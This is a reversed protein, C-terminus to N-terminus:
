ATVPPPFPKRIFVRLIVGKDGIPGHKAEYAAVAEEQTQGEYQFIRVWAKPGSSALRRELDAVRHSLRM